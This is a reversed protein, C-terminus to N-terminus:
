LINGNYYGSWMDSLDVTADPSKRSYPTMEQWLDDLAIEAMCTSYDGAGYYLRIINNEEMVAGCPFIVNERWFLEKNGTEYDKEPVLLPKETIAIVRFPDKKIWCFPAALTAHVGNQGTRISSKVPRTM